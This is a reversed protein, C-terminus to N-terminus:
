RDFEDLHLQEIIAILKQAYKKDTAYGAKRLGYAWKKYNKGYRQLHRYRKGMLLESHARYSAWASKYIRFFDKHSDDSFNSCHGKKCKRSFCKMGFHNKNKRSLKSGGADSELLGQALTISAPIGYKDMESRAVSAYRRVYNECIKNNVEVMRRTVDDRYKLKPNVLFAINAFHNHKKPNKLSYGKAVRDVNGWHSITTTEEETFLADKRSEVLGPMLSGRIVYHSNPVREATNSMYVIFLILIMWHREFGDRLAKRLQHFSQLKM